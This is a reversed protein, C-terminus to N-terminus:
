REITKDFENMRDIYRAILDIELHVPDDVSLNGLSTVALTHPVIMVAFITGNEDDAIIQNTTLSVGNISVSGKTAIYRGLPRPIFFRMQTYEGVPACLCLRGVGDVHGSVMHGGLPTSLSLATELNVTEGNKWSSIITKDLTESSVDFDAEQDNIAVVTLCVGNCAISDGLQIADVDLSGLDIVLRCGLEGLQNSVVRGKSQIIGTFM